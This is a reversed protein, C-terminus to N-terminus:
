RLSVVGRGGLGEARQGPLVRVVRPDPVEGCEGVAKRCSLPATLSLIEHVLPDLALLRPCGRRGLDVGREGPQGLGCAPFPEGEVPLASGPCPDSARRVWGSRTM